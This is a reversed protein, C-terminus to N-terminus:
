PMLAQFIPSFVMFFSKTFWSWKILGGNSVKLSKFAQTLRLLIVTIVPNTRNIINIKSMDEMFPSIQISYWCPTPQIFHFVYFISVFFETAGIVSYIVSYSAFSALFHIHM